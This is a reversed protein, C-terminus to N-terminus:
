VLQKIEPDALINKINESLLGNESLLPADIVTKVVQAYKVAMAVKKKDDLSYTSWNTNSNAIKSLEAVFFKLQSKLGGLLLLVQDSHDRIIKLEKEATKLEAAIKNAEALNSYANNLKTRAKAFFLGGSILLAPGAVLGGLVATGLAMGGGGAAIAGGGLWALTANTAAVGSLGGIAAGTSATGLAMVGGYTGWGILAGAGVGAIGGSLVSVAGLSTSKMEALDNEELNFKGLEDFGEGKELKINKIKGFTEVFNHLESSAVELKIKGLSQIKEMTKEKENEISTQALKLISEADSQIGKAKHTDYAGKAGAGLGGAAAAAALGILIAPIAM